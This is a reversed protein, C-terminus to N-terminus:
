VLTCFLQSIHYECVLVAPINSFFVYTWGDPSWAAM